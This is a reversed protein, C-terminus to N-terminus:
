NWLFGVDGFPPTIARDFAVRIASYAALAYLEITPQRRRHSTGALEDDPLPQLCAGAHTHRESHQCISRAPNPPAHPGHTGYTTLRSKRVKSKKLAADHENNVKLM